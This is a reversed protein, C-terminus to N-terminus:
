CGFRFVWFDTDAAERRFEKRECALKGLDSLTKSEGSRGDRLFRGSGQRAVIVVNYSTITALPLRLVFGTEAPKITYIAPDLYPGYWDMLISTGPAIHQNLWNRADARRDSFREVTDALSQAAGPVLLLGALSALVAARIRSREATKGFALCVAEFGCAILVILAPIIPMLNRDFRVVQMSVLTLYAAVFVALPLIRARAPHLASAAALALAPGFAGWLWAINTKWAGGENGPHGTRYHHVEALIGSSARPFDLIVFPSTLLFVAIAISGSLVLLHLRSLGFRGHLGHGAAIALGVLGANYKSSAALGTMVGGFVYGKMAESKAVRVAGILALTCFLAAPIDPSIMRSHAALLPNIAAFAGALLIPLGSAAVERALIMTCAVLGVGLLAALARGIIFAGPQPAYASGGAQLDIPQLGGSAAQVAWQGPVHLYYFLSPYNFAIPNATGNRLMNHVVVLNSPEDPHSLFPLDWPLGTFRLAAAVLVIVLCGIWLRAPNSLGFFPDGAPASDRNMLTEYGRRGGIALHAPLRVGAGSRLM